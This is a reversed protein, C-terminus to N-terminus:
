VPGGLRHEPTALLRSTLALRRSSRARTTPTGAARVCRRSPSRCHPSGNCSPGHAPPRVGFNLQLRTLLLAHCLWACGSSRKDAAVNTLYCARSESKRPGLQGFPM